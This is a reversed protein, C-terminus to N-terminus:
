YKDNNIFHVMFGNEIYNPLSSMFDTMDFENPLDDAIIEEIKKEYENYITTYILKDEEGFDFNDVYKNVFQKRWKNFNYGQIIEEILLLAERIEEVRM